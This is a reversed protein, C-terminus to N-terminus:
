YAWFPGSGVNAVTQGDIATFVNRGFFFPLGWDFSDASNTGGLTSFVSDGGSNTAFLADANDVAFSVINTFLTNPDENTASLATLAAPCFFAEKDTCNPINTDPFFYANSGSDIFSFDCVGPGGASSVCTPFDVTFNDFTNLTFLNATSPIQNNSQTNIGFILSGTLTAEADSTTAPLTMVVGNNDTTFLVVPNTVQDAQVVLAATCTSSTCNYYPDGVPPTNVFNPDCAPGCDNPEPGVGLIGNSGLTAVTDEDGATNGNSCSTPANTDTSILQLPTSSAVENTGLKVDAVAVPGWLYSLDVFSVCNMLSGSGSSLTPLSLTVGSALLRLGYSGTDVLVDDIVQCSTTGPVCITVSTFAADPYISGQSVLPGGNVSISQVNSSIGGGSTVTLKATASFTTSGSTYSATITAVEGATATSQVTVTVPDTGQTVSFDATTGSTTSTITWTTTATVDVPTSNGSVAAFSQFTAFGGNANANATTPSINIATVNALSSSSVLLGDYALTNYDFVAISNATGTFRGTNDFYGFLSFAGGNISGSVFMVNGVASGSFIFNGNDTGTLTTQVTLSYNSGETLTAVVYDSGGPFSLNGAFIGALNSVVTGTFTGSDSCNANNGSYSGSISTGTLTGQGTFTNGGENFTLAISSGSVTASISNQGPSQSSCIGNVYWTGSHYTATQVQNPGSASSQNGNASIDAEILTVDGTSGSTAVFEYAGSIGSGSPTGGGGSSSGSSGGGCGTTFLALAV